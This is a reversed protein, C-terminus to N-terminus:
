YKSFTWFKEVNIGWKEVMEQAKFKCAEPIAVHFEVGQPRSFDKFKYKADESGISDCTEVAMIITREGKKAWIEPIHAGVPDPKGNPCDIPQVKVYWGKKTFYKLGQNIIIEYRKKDEGYRTTM